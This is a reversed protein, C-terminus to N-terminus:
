GRSRIYEWIAHDLRSADEDLSKAAALVLGETENPGVTRALAESAFRTLWTDAKVGQSGLLMCFYRWTVPGLGRVGVYAARQPTSSPDIDAAHRAGVALLRTAAQTIAVAKLAGGSVRQHNGLTEAMVMPDADALAKLDNVTGSRCRRWRGVAGRVGTDSDGYRARISLVADILAAEVEDPYGGPWDPRKRPLERDLHALFADLDNASPSNVTM